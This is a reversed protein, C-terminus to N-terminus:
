QKMCTTILMRAVTYPDANAAPRRDEFYGQGATAVLRPVRISCGRDAVGAKFTNIDCTEHKGTLRAENGVGYVAIHAAHAKSLKEIAANIAAIGNSRRMTDTSFNTHAGAGNWDGPVPKPALSVTIGFDEGLRHLLWRAVTVMDGTDLPSTPGIQFEWQAPMVEANIGAITLGAKMCADMHAEALPRGYVEELGTGCYFPGQAAPFGADPWGFPRGNKGIMTYEQEWGFLPAESTVKNDIVARLQARTNTAHPTGDPNMVECLVLLNNGGRIPDPCSFVPRLICDSDRTDSQGTSSGDFTWDPFTGGVAVQNPLVKTKSRLTNGHLGQRRLCCNSVCRYRM